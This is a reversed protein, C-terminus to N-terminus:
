AVDTQLSSAQGWKGFNGGDKQGRKTDDDRGLAGYVDKGIHTM